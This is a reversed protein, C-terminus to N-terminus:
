DNCILHSNDTLRLVQNNNAVNKELSYIYPKVLKFVFKQIMVFM